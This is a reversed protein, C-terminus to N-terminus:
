LISIKVRFIYILIKSSKKIIRVTTYQGEVRGLMGNWLSAGSPLSVNQHWNYSSDRLNAQSVIHFLTFDWAVTMSQHVLLSHGTFQIVTIEAQHCDFMGNWLYQTPPQVIIYSPSSLFDTLKSVRQHCTTTSSALVWCLPGGARRNLLLGPSRSRCEAIDLPATSTLINCDKNLRWSGRVCLREFLTHPINKKLLRREDKNNRWYINQM